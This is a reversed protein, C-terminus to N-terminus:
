ALVLEDTTLFLPADAWQQFEAAVEVMMPQAIDTLFGDMDAIDIVEAYQFPPKADSGFIGTIGYVRFDDISMLSRVGPMDRTKAWHEYDAAAVGPKLNFLVLIRM